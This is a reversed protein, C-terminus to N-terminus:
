SNANWNYTIHHLAPTQQKTAFNPSSSTLIKQDAIRPSQDSNTWKVFTL